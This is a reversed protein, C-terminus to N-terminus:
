KLDNRYQICLFTDFNQKRISTSLNLISDLKVDNCRLVFCLAKNSYGANSNHTCNQILPYLANQVKGKVIM